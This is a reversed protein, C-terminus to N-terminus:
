KLKLLWGTEEVTPDNLITNFEVIVDAIEATAQSFGPKTTYVNGEQVAKFDAFLSNAAIMDEVSEYPCAMVVWIIYDAESCSAYFEEFTLKANGSEEAGVDAMIYDGGAIELMKVMYDGGNRAYVTGDSTIYYMCVTKGAKESGSLANVKAVAEDFFTAAEEDLGLLAGMLKVWEMRGLPHEEKSSDEIVYPIGLEEYKAMIEPKGSLMTTDIELQVGENMIMEFDPESYKGSFKIQGANMKDVVSQINWGSVDTAVTAISDLGNIASTLSMLSSSAACIRNLPQQLVVTNEPLNEPVSKGEPVILYQADGMTEPITFMTYGGKYRTLTFRNAYAFAEEHDLILEGDVDDDSPEPTAEPTEVPAAPQTAEPTPDPEKDTQAPACAVFALTLMVLALLLAIYKKATTKM